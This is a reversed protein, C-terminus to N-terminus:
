EGSGSPRRPRQNALRQILIFFFTSLTASSRQPNQDNWARRPFAALSAGREALLALSPGACHNRLAERSANGRLGHSRDVQGLNSAVGGGRRRRGRGGVRDKKKKEEVPAVRCKWEKGVRREESGRQAVAVEGDSVDAAGVGLAVVIEFRALVVHHDAAAHVDIRALDLIVESRFLV